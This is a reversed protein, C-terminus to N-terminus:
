EVELMISQETVDIVMHLMADDGMVGRYIGPITLGYGNGNVFLKCTQLFLRGITETAHYYLRNNEPDFSANLKDGKQWGIEEIKRRPLLIQMAGANILPAKTYHYKM